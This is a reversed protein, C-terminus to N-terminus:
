NDTSETNQLLPRVAKQITDLGFGRQEIRVGLSVCLDIRFQKWTVTDPPRRGVKLLKKAAPIILNATPIPGPRAKISSAPAPPPELGIQESLDLRALAETLPRRPGILHEFESRKIRDLYDALQRERARRRRLAGRDNLDVPHRIDRFDSLPPTFRGLDPESVRYPAKLYERVLKAMAEIPVMVTGPRQAVQATGTILTRKARGAEKWYQRSLPGEDVGDISLRADLGAKRLWSIIESNARKVEPNEKFTIDTKITKKRAAKKREALISHFDLCAESLRDWGDDFISL